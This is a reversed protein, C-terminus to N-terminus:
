GKRPKPAPARAPQVAMHRQVTAFANAPLSCPLSTIVVIRIGIGAPSDPVWLPRVLEALDGGEYRRAAIGAAEAAAM